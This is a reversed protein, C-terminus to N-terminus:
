SPQTAQHFTTEDKRTVVGTGNQIEKLIYQHSINAKSADRVIVSDHHHVFSIGSSNTVVGLTSTIPCLPCDKKMKLKQVVCNIVGYTKSQMWAGVAEPSAIFSFVGSDGKMKNDHSRQYQVKELCEQETM